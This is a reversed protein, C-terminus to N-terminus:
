GANFGRARLREALHMRMGGGGVVVAPGADRVIREAEARIRAAAADAAAGELTLRLTETWEPARAAVAADKAAAAGARHEGYGNYFEDVLDMLGDDADARRSPAPSPASDSTFPGRLRARAAEDLAAAAKKYGGLPEM